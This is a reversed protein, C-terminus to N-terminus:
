LLFDAARLEPGDPSASLAEPQDGPGLAFRVEIRFDASRDGDVDGEVLDDRVRIQGERGTFRGSGSFVFADNQATDPAADIARLDILDAGQLFDAILDPARLTSDGLWVFRFVDDGRGGTLSDQGLGGILVDSGRGGSLRDDGAGGSLVDDGDDGLLRDAHAGGAIRDDGTGGRLFDDGAGGALDDDGDNGQVHDDGRDGRIRDDGGLGFVRDDFLTADFDDAGNTGLIDPIGADLTEGFWVHFIRGAYPGAGPSTDVGVGMARFTVDAWPGSNTLVADHASSGRWGALAAEVTAFGAASIEYGPAAYGTGVRAPADWMVSPNRADDYYYADSWSHLNAGAPLQVDERWVNERTDVVHRNATSTLAKSLRVASLGLSARYDMAAHYLELEQLSLADGAHPVTVDVSM